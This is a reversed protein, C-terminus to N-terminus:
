VCISLVSFLLLVIVTTNFDCYITLKSSHEPPHTPVCRDDRLCSSLLALTLRSEVALSKDGFVCVFGKGENGIENSSDARVTYDARNNLDFHRSFEWYM